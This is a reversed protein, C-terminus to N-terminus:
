ALGKVALEQLHLYCGPIMIQTTSLKLQLRVIDQSFREM